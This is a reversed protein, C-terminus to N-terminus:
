SPVSALLSHIREILSPLSHNARIYGVGKRSIERRQEATASLAYIIGRAVDSVDYPNVVLEDPIAGRVADNAVVAVCGCAMAEGITKDFGGAPSVNVYIEHTRFLEPADKQTIGARFTLAGLAELRRGKERMESAYQEHGETPDGCITAGFFYGQAAVMELADIFVDARKSRDLRGFFLITKPQAVDGPSFVETDIGIPMFRTRKGTALYSARSTTVPMDSLYKAIITLISGSRHNRWFMCPKGSLRWLLGGLLVYEQNMHVFVADYEHRLRWVHTYFRIVYRFRSRATEKGLSHVFVNSPASFHGSKLCIVNVEDFHRAFEQTWRVFFGLVPDSEDMVQTCILLRM